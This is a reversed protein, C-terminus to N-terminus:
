SYRASRERRWVRRLPHDRIAEPIKHYVCFSGFWGGLVSALWLLAGTWAAFFLTGSDFPSLTTFVKDATQVDLYSHGVFWRWACDFAYAGVSVMLVNGMAAAIQSSFIQSAFDAIEDWRDKG